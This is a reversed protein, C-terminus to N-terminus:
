KESTKVFDKLSMGRNTVTAKGGLGVLLATLIASKGSGNNGVIFNVNPGFQFPGLLRHSMFNKLTISEILGIDGTSSPEPRRKADATVRRSKAATADSTAKGRRKSMTLQRGEGEAGGPDKLRRTGDPHTSTALSKEYRSRPPIRRRCQQVVDSSTDTCWSQLGPCPTSAQEPLLVSAVLCSIGLSEQDQCDM